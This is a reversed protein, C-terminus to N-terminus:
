WCKLKKRWFTNMKFLNLNQLHNQEKKQSKQQINFQAQQPTLETPAASPPPGSLAQMQQPTLDM